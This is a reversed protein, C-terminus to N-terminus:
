RVRAEQLRKMMEDFLEPKEYALADIVKADVRALRLAATEAGKLIARRKETEADVNRYVPMDPFVFTMYPQDNLIQAIEQQAQQMREGIGTIRVWARSCFLALAARNRTDIVNVYDYLTEFSLIYVVSAEHGKARFVTSLTVRGAEAFTSSVHNIGSITSHIELEFLSKQLMPLLERMYLSNLCIVMIQEPAVQEVAIDHKISQAIWDIEEERTAFVHSAVLSQQGQYIEGIRNPSNEPARRIVVHEGPRLSGQELHYGLVKWSEAKELMQVCGESSYLGLGIAHALMLVAQPCRYSKHLVLDKEINGPYPEGRLSILPKGAQDQGFLEEPQPLRTKMVREFEDYVWCICHADSSLRYLLQFFEKPFDQAEDVLIFDYVPEVSDSLIHTCCAQLSDRYNRAKTSRLDYPAIGSMSCLDDYIGPSSTGGWAHRLHLYNWDPEEYSHMRYFRVILDQIHNYLSRTSFTFLIKKKPFRLHINAAKIALLITKGTGALGRIRQPGPAIQLAAKVQEEDLLAIDGDLTKIADGLTAVEEPTHRSLDKLSNVGQIISLLHRWETDTLPQDLSQTVTQANGDSYIIIMGNDLELSGFKEEFQHKSILPLGLICLPKLRGRLTRDREFKAKLAIALDELELLPSDYTEGDVVMTDTDMTDIDSMRYHLSRVILPQFSRGFVTLDPPIRSATHIIPYKYFCIGEDEVFHPQLWEWITKTAKDSAYDPVTSIFEIM